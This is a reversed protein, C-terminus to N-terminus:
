QRKNHPVSKKIKAITRSDEDMVITLIRAKATTGSVLIDVALDSEMAKSSTGWNMRCDHEKM